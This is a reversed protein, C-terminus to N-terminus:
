QLAGSYDKRARLIQIADLLEMDSSVLPEPPEKIIAKPVEVDPMESCIREAADFIIDRYREVKGKAAEIAAAERLDPEDNSSLWARLHENAEAEWQAQVIGVRRRLTEDYFPDIADEVIKQLV